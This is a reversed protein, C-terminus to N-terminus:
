FIMIIIPTFNSGVVLDAGRFTVRCHFSFNPRFFYLSLYSKLHNPGGISYYGVDLSLEIQNNLIGIYLRGVGKELDRMKRKYNLVLPKSLLVDRM